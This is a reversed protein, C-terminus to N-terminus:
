ARAAGRKTNSRSTAPALQGRAAEIDRGRTLRVTAPIRARGLVAKFAEIAARSSGEYRGTPNYPILNVKFSRADLL